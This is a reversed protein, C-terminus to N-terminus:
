LHKHDRDNSENHIEDEELNETVTVTMTVMPMGMTTVLSRTANCNLCGDCMDYTVNNLRKANAECGHQDPLFREFTPDARDCIVTTFLDTPPDVGIRAASKKKPNQDKACGLGRDNKCHIGEHDFSGLVDALSLQYFFQCTERMHLGDMIYM